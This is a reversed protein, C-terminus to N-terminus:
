QCSGDWGMRICNIIDAEHLERLSVWTYEPTPTSLAHVYLQMGLLEDRLAQKAAEDGAKVREWEVAKVAAQDIEMFM